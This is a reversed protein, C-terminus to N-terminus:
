FPRRVTREVLVQPSKLSLSYSLHPTNSLACEFRRFDKDHFTLQTDYDNLSMSSFLLVSFAIKGGKIKNIILLLNRYFTFAFLLCVYRNM